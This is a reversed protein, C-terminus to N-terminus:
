RSAVTRRAKEVLAREEPLLGAKESLDLFEAARAHEGAGALIIGYYAAIEPERLQEPTLASMVKEAKRSDGAAHLAYAYTSAYVANKPEREHLDRAMKQAREVNLNLLLSLQAVNNQIARDDPKFGQRHLLVRYLDQTAGNEAFYTYLSQLADDGNVPDKAAIWLMEIAEDRWGWKQVVEALTLAQKPASSVKQRAEAWQAAADAEDRLARSARAALASRLYDISGWHGTKVLARMGSWEGAAIYSDALAIPVAKQALTEPPLKSAWSIAAIPMANGNFWSLLDAAHEPHNMAETKLEELLPTAGPDLSGHLASLLLLRDLFVRDPLADLQRGLAVAEELSRRRIADILLRRTAERRHAPDDQLRTLRQKGEDRVAADSSEIQLTALRLLFEKNEPELRVAERLHREVDAPAKRAAALDAAVGHYAATNKAQEPLRKLAFDLQGKDEFRIAARALALLDTVNGPALDVARRRWEIATSLNGEESIRALVRAGEVSEPNIQLIRRADLSARKLNGENVLANAQAVLRREQWARYQKHGIVGGAILLILIGLTWAAIKFLSRQIKDNPDQLTLLKRILM